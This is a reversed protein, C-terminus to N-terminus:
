RRLTAASRPPVLCAYGPQSPNSAMAVAIDPREQEQLGEFLYTLSLEGAYPTYGHAAINSQLANGVVARESASLLESTSNSGAFPNRPFALALAQSGMVAQTGKGNANDSFSGDPQMFAKKFARTVNALLAGWRASENALGLRSAASQLVALQRAYFFSSSLPSIGYCGGMGSNEVTHPLWKFACWDGFRSFTFLGTEADTANAVVFNIYQAVHAYHDGWVRTDGYHEYLYQVLLAYAAAWGPDAMANPDLSGTLGNGFAPAYDPMNGDGNGHFIQADRITRLFVTYTAALDFQMMAWPAAGHASDLWGRKERTPCDSPFGFALNGLFSGRGIRTAENLRDNSTMLMGTHEVDVRVGALRVAERALPGPYNEIKVYQGGSSFFRPTWYHSHDLASETGSCIYTMFGTCGNGDAGCDYLHFVRGPGTNESQPQHVAEGHTVKIRTGPACGEPIELTLVGAVDPRCLM